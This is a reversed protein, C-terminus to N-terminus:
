PAGDVVQPEVGHVRLQGDVVILGVEALYSKADPFDEVVAGAADVTSSPAQTFTATAAFYSDNVKVAAVSEISVNGGTSTQQAAVQGEVNTIVSACFACEAHSLTRWEALDGTAYVYPYLQLFYRAAAEAGAVSVEAMEAPREPAIAEPPTTPTPSASPTSTGAPSVTPTPETAEPTCAALGVVACMGAVVAM